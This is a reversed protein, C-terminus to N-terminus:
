GRALALLADGRLEEMFLDNRACASRWHSSLVRHGAREFSKRGMSRSLVAEGRCHSRHPPVPSLQAPGLVGAPRYSPTTKMSQRLRGEWRGTLIAEVETQHKRCAWLAPGRTMPPGFCFLAPKNRCICCGRTHKPATAHGREAELTSGLWLRSNGIVDIRHRSGLPTM